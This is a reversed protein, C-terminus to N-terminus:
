ALALDNDAHRRGESLFDTLRRDRIALSDIRKSLRDILALQSNEDPESFAIDFGIVRAGDGSLADILTAIKSRPWPWRGEADLSKEDIAAIVVAPTAARRGRSLFRVDYTKLEILDLIPTGWVYLVLVLLIAVLTLSAPNIGLRSLGPFRM